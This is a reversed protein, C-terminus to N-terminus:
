LGTIPGASGIEQIIAVYGQNVEAQWGNSTNHSKSASLNINSITTTSPASWVFMAKLNRNIGSGVHSGTLVRVTGGLQTGGVSGNWLKLELRSEGLTGTPKVDIQIHALYARGAVQPTNQINASSITTDTTGITTTAATSGVRGDVVRNVISGGMTMLSATLEGSLTADSASFSEGASLDGPVALNNGFVWSDVVSGGLSTWVSGDWWHYGHTDVEYILMGEHPARPRTTSTCVIVSQDMLLQLDRQSPPEFQRFIKYGM